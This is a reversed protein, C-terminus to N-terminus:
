TYDAYTPETSLSRIQFRLSDPTAGPGAAQYQYGTEMYCDAFTIRRGGAGRSDPLDVIVNYLTRAGGSSVGRLAAVLESSDFTTASVKGSFEITSPREDGDLVDGTFVGRDMVAHTEVLGPTFSLTGSEVLLVTDTGIKLAGGNEFRLPQGANIDAM